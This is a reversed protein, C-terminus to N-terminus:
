KLVLKQYESAPDEPDEPDKTEVDFRNSERLATTMGELIDPRSREILEDEVQGELHPFMQSALDFYASQSTWGLSGEELAGVIENFHDEVLAKGREFAQKNPM